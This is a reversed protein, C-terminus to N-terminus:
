LYEAHGSVNRQQTGHLTKVLVWLAATFAIGAASSRLANLGPPVLVRLLPTDTAYIPPSAKDYFLVMAPSSDSNGVDYGFLTGAGAKLLVPTPGLTDFPAVSNAM